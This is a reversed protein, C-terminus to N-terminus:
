RSPQCRGYHNITLIVGKKGLLAVFDGTKSEPVVDIFLNGDVSYGDGNPALTYTVSQLRITSIGASAADPALAKMKRAIIARAEEPQAAM